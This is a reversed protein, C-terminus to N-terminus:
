WLPVAHGNAIWEKELALLGDVTDLMTDEFRTYDERKLGLVKEVRDVDFPINKPSVVPPETKTLRHNLEPRKTKVLDLFAKYEFDDLAAIILRKRGLDSESSLPAKLALVHAKAVDRLDIYRPGIPWQGDPKILEYIALNTTLSPYNPEPM